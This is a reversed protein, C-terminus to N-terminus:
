GVAFAFFALSLLILLGGLAITGRRGWRPRLRDSVLGAVPQVLMGLLLGAFTLLGLTTARSARDTFGLLQQPLVLTNLGDFLMSLALWFVSIGALMRVRGM